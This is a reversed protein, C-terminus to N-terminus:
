NKKEPLLTMVDIMNEKSNGYSTNRCKKDDPNDVFAVHHIDGLEVCIEGCAVGMYAEGGIHECMTYDGDCISCKSKVSVTSISNFTQPPFLVREINNFHIICEQQLTGSLEYHNNSWHSNNQADILYIWANNPDNQKIKIFMIIGSLIALCLNELSLFKNSEDENQESIFKEKTEKIDKNLKELEIKQKEFNTIDRTIFLYNMKSELIKMLTKEDIM